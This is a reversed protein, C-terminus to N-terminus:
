GNDGEERRDEDTRPEYDEVEGKGKVEVLANKKDEAEKALAKYKKGTPFLADRDFFLLSLVLAVAGGTIFFDAFNCVAFGFKNLDVMDRVGLLCDTEWIRFYLRDILNGVGGAIVFIIAMRLFTRRTDIKFYFVAFVAMLVATGIIILIKVWPQADGFKGYAIGPNYTKVLYIWGPIVAIGKESPNWEPLYMESLMKTVQDFIVLLAFLVVGWFITRRAKYKELEPSTLKEKKM